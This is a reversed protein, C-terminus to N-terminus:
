LSVVQIFSSYKNLFMLLWTLKFRKTNNNAPVPTSSLAKVEEDQAVVGAKNKHHIKELYPKM